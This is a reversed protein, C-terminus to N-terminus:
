AAVPLRLQTGVRADLARQAMLHHARCLVSLVAQHHHCGHSSRARGVPPDHHVELAETAGCESCRGGARRLAETRADAWVHNARWLRRCDESCFRRQRGTLPVGDWACRGDGVDGHSVSCRSLRM